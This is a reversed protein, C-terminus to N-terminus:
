VLTPINREKLYAVAEDFSTKRYEAIRSIVFQMAETENTHRKYEDMITQMESFSLIGNVNTMLPEGLKHNINMTHGQWGNPSVMGHWKGDVFVDLHPCRWDFSLKRAEVEDGLLNKM